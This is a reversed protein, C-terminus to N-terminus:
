FKINGRLLVQHINVTINSFRLSPACGAFVTGAPCSLIDSGTLGIYDYEVGLTFNQTLLYDYGTGITWGNAWESGGGGTGASIRNLTIRAGAYGGKVYWLSRDWAYGLQATATALSGVRTTYDLGGAANCGLASCGTSKLSAAALSAEVGFVWPGSQWRAGLQGGGLWGSSRSGAPDCPIIFGGSCLGNSNTLWDSEAWAGGVQGGIYFGTWTWIPALPPPAKLAMDAALAPQAALAVLGLGAFLIRKM